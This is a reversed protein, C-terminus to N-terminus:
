GPLITGAEVEKLPWAFRSEKARTGTGSKATRRGFSRRFSDRWEFASFFFSTGKKRCPCAHEREIEGKHVECPPSLLHYRFRVLVPSREHAADDCANEAFRLRVPFPRVREPRKRWVWQLVPALDFSLNIFLAMM